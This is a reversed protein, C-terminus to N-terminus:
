EAACYDGMFEYRLHSLPSHTSAQDYGFNMVYENDNLLIKKSTTCLYIEFCQCFKLVLTTRLLIKVEFDLVWRVNNILATNM